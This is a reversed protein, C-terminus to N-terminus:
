SGEMKAKRERLVTGGQLGRLGDSSGGQEYPFMRGGSLGGWEERWEWVAAKKKTTDARRLGVLPQYSLTQKFTSNKCVWTIGGQWKSRRERGSILLPGLVVWRLISWTKSIRHNSSSREPFPCPGGSSLNEACYELSIICTLCDFAELTEEKSTIAEYFCRPSDESMLPWM